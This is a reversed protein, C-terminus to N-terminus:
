IHKWSERRLIAGISKRSLGFGEATDAIDARSSGDADMQRLQRVQEETLKALRSREGFCHRQKKVMDDVNDQNTGLFIHRLNFCPPTDCSHLAFLGSPIPGVLIIYAVRSVRDQKDQYHVIGYGKENCRFPWKLCEDTNHNRATEILYPIMKSERRRSESCKKIPRMHDPNGCKGNACDLALVMGEPIPGIFLQYAVRNVAVRWRKGDRLGLYIIGRGKNICEFPFPWEVCSEGARNAILNAFYTLRAAINAQHPM